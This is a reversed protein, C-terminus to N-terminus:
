LLRKKRVIVATNINSCVYLIINRLKLFCLVYDEAQKIIFTKKLLTLKYNYPLDKNGGEVRKVVGNGCFGCWKVSKFLFLLTRLVRTFYPEVPGSVVPCGGGCPM